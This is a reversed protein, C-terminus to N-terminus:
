LPRQGANGGRWLLALGHKGASVAQLLQRQGGIGLLRQSGLRARSAVVFIRQHLSSLLQGGRAGETVVPQHMLRERIPRAPQTAPMPSKRFAAKFAGLM